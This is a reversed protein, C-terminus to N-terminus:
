GLKDELWKRAVTRSVNRLGSVITAANAKSLVALERLAKRERELRQERVKGRRVLEEETLNSWGPWKM